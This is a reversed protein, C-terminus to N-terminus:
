RGRSGSLTSNRSHWLASSRWRPSCGSSTQPAGASSVRLLFAAHGPPRRFPKIPMLRGYCSFGGHGNSEGCDGAAMDKRRSASGRQAATESQPRCGGLQGGDALAILGVDPAHRGVVQELRARELLAADLELFERDGGAVERHLLHHRALHVHAGVRCIPLACTQVGTVSWDRIGDEAQFFFVLGTMCLVWRFAIFWVVMVLM